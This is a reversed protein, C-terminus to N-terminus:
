CQRPPLLLDLIRLSEQSVQAATVPGRYIQHIYAEKLRDFAQIPDDQAAAAFKWAGISTGFLHLPDRRGKFWHSFIASDLGCLVLWKAAGSAGMVAAIDPPSLGKERIHKYASKGALLLLNRSMERRQLVFCLTLFHGAGTIEDNQDTLGRKILGALVTDRVNRM